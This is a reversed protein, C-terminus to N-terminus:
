NKGHGHELRKIDDRLKAAEEYREDRIAEDLRRKLADLPSTAQRSAEPAPVAHGKANKKGPEEKLVIGAQEMVKEALFVPASFRLALALADSPRADVETEVGDHDLVLLAYFTSDV